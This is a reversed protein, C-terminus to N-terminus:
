LDEYRKLCLAKTLIPHLVAVKQYASNKENFIAIKQLADELYEDFHNDISPLSLEEKLREKLELDEIYAYYAMLDLDNQYNAYLYEKRKRLAVFIDAFASEVEEHARILPMMRKITYLCIIGLVLLSATIFIM